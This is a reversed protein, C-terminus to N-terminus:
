DCLLEQNKWFNGIVRINVDEEIDSFDMFVHAGICDLEWRLWESSWRILWKLNAYSVIDKEYIENGDIDKKGIREMIDEVNLEYLCTAEPPCGQMATIVTVDNVPIVDYLMIGDKWARWHGIGNYKM